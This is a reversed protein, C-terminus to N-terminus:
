KIISLIEKKFEEKYNHVKPIQELFMEWKEILRQQNIIFINDM